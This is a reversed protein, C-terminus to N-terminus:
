LDTEIGNLEIWKLFNVVRWTAANNQRLETWFEGSKTQKEIFLNSSRMIDNLHSGHESFLHNLWLGQPTEFGIKDRRKIIPEPVIGKMAYRLIKKTEGNSGVLFSEPLSLVYEVLGRDLFPVRSEVSASM